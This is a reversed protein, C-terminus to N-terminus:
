LAEPTWRYGADLRTEQSCMACRESYTWCPLEASQHHWIRCQPCRVAVHGHELQQKCRPCFVPRPVPPFPVPEALTETSFFSTGTGPVRLEDRDVLVRVGLELPDGNVRVSAHPPALLVFAQRSPWLEVRGRASLAGGLASLEVPRPPHVGLALPADTLALVAFGEDDRIWLHAM